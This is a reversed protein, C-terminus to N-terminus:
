EHASRTKVRGAVEHAIEAKVQDCFESAAEYCEFECLLLRAFRAALGINRIAVPLPQDDTGCNRQTLEKTESM